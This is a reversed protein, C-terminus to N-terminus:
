PVRFLEKLLQLLQRESIPKPLDGILGSGIEPNDGHMKLIQRHVLGLRDAIGANVGSIINDLNTHIAYIAIERRIAHILIKGTSNDPLINKVPKFILPHHSVILNCKKEVAEAIVAETCDLSVLVGSCALNQDGTILGSNDYNEQYVPPAWEELLHIIDRINM